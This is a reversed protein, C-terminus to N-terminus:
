RAYAGMGFSTGRSNAVKSQNNYITEGDLQVVLPQSQQNGMAAVVASYVGQSIGAVIQDNNAVATKGGMTGVMEPGAENAIFLEGSTPFGGTAFAGSMGMGKNAINGVLNVALGGVGSSNIVAQMAKVAVVIAAAAAIILLSAKVFSSAMSSASSGFKSAVSGIVSILNRLGTSIASVISTVVSAAAQLASVIGEGLSAMMSVGTSALNSFLSRANSIFGSIAARSSSAMSSIASTVSGAMSSVSGIIGSVMSSIGSIASSSLTGIASVVASTMGTILSPIASALTSIVSQANSSMTSLSSTFGSAMNSASSTVTSRLSSLYSGISSVMSSVTSTTSSSMSSFVSSVSSSIGSISTSISSPLRNFASAISSTVGNLTAQLQSGFSVVTTLASAFAPALTILPDTVKFIINPINIPNAAIFGNANAVAMQLQPVLDPFKIGDEIGKGLETSLGRLAEAGAEIGAEFAGAAVGASGFSGELQPLGGLVGGLGEKLGGLVGGLNRLGDLNPLKLKGLSGLAGSTQTASDKLTDLEKSLKKSGEADKKMKATQEGLAKNKKGFANTLKNTIGLLDALKKLLKLAMLAEAIYRIMNLLPRLKEVLEDTKKKMEDFLGTSEKLEPFTIEGLINGSDDKKDDKAPDNLVNLEDFGMTANKLEKLAKTADDANDTLDGTNDSAGGINDGMKAIEDDITTPKYGFLKALANAWEGLIIVIANLYPIVDILMPIFINGISQTLTKVRENLIKLQNAPSDANRAFDGQALTTQRVMLSYRLAMKEGQSMNRVSKTIGQNLAEQALSAETLDVGYKYMTETQGVLGSRIDEMAQVTSVNFLSALDVSLRTASLGMKNAMETTMGMSRALVTYNGSANQLNSLNMGTLDSFSELTKNSQKALHGMSVAFLNITETANVSSQIAKAIGDALQYLGVGKLANSLNFFSNTMGNVSKSARNGDKAINGINDNTKRLNKGWKNYNNSAGSAKKGSSSFANGLEKLKSITQDATTKIKIQVNNDNNAM